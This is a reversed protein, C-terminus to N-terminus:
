HLFDPQHLTIFSLKKCCKFKLAYNQIPKIKCCYEFAYYVIKFCLQSLGLSSWPSEIDIAISLLLNTLEGIDVICMVGYITYEQNRAIAERIMRFLACYKIYLADQSAPNQNQYNLIQYLIVNCPM